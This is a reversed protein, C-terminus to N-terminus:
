DEQQEHLGCQHKIMKHLSKFGINVVGRLTAMYLRKFGGQGQCAVCFSGAEKDELNRLSWCIYYLACKPLVTVYWRVVSFFPKQGAKHSVSLCSQFVNM